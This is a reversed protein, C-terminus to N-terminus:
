PQVRTAILEHDSLYDGSDSLAPMVFSDGATVGRTFLWDLKKMPYNATRGPAVRTTTSATNADCWDFGAAAFHAFGPESEAPNTMTQAASVGTDAFGRTNLDGGIVCPGPGYHADIASLLRATQEARGTADSESEYHVSILTLPGRGTDIQAGIAMRGGVRYQGDKKPAQLFWYGGDDLPIVSINSLPFRSLIANGHLGHLNTDHAHAAVEFPDGIGLEVFEVGYAYGFGLLRALDRPTHRQGSRAMGHDMETALVVDAGSARLVNATDEVRKCREINWATITLQDPRDASPAPQVLEVTNLCPWGHSYRDHAVRDGWNRTAEAREAATPPSLSAVIKTIIDPM